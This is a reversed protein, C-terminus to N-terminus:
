ALVSAVTSASLPEHSPKAPEPASPTRTVDNSWRSRTPTTRSRWTPRDLAEALQGLTFTTSAPVFDTAFLLLQGDYPLLHDYIVAATAGDALAHACQALGWLRGPRSIDPPMVQGAGNWDNLVTRAMDLDHQAVAVAGVLHAFDLAPHADLADAILRAEDARGAALLRGVTLLAHGLRLPSDDPLAHLIEDTALQADDYRGRALAETAYARHAGVAIARDGSQEYALLMEQAWHRLEDLHGLRALALAKLTWGGGGFTFGAKTAQEATGLLAQADPARDALM